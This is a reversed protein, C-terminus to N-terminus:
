KYFFLWEYFVKFFMYLSFEFHPSLKAARLAANQGCCLLSPIKFVDIVFFIDLCEFDQAPLVANFQARKEVGVKAWGVGFM